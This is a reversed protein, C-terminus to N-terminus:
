FVNSAPMNRKEIVLFRCKYEALFYPFRRGILDSRRGLIGIRGLLSRALRTEKYKSHSLSSGALFEVKDAIPPLASM